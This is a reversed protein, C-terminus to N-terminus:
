EIKTPVYERMWSPLRVQAVIPNGIDADLSDFIHFLFHRKEYVNHFEGWPIFLPPHGVRFPFLVSMHLGAGSVGFTLCSGYGVWGVRASRLYFMKGWESRDSRYHEALRSWGGIYSLLLLTGGWFIPFVVVAFTILFINAM